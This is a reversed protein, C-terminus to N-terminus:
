GVARQTSEIRLEGQGRDPRTGRRRALSQSRGGKQLEDQRHTILTDYDEALKILESELPNTPVITNATLGDYIVPSTGIVVM